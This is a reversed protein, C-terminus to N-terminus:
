PESRRDLHDPDARRMGRNIIRDGVSLPDQAARANLTAIAMVLVGVGCMAFIRSMIM